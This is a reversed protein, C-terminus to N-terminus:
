AGTQWQALWADVAGSWDTPGTIGEVMGTSLRGRVGTSTRTESAAFDADHRRGLSVSASDAESRGGIQAVRLSIPAAASQQRASTVQAVRTALGSRNVSQLVDADRPVGLNFVSLNRGENGNTTAGEAYALLSTSAGQLPATPVVRGHLSEFGASLRLQSAGIRWNSRAPMALDVDVSTGYLMAQDHGLSGIANVQDFGYASHQFRYGAVDGQIRGMDSQFILTDNATSDYLSAKDIGGSAYATVREFGNTVLAYSRGTLRAAGPQAIFTENGLTDYLSAQDEGSSAFVDVRAFGVARHAFGNGSMTSEAASGVFQDNGVSDHFVVSDYGGGGVLIIQEVGDVGVAYGRGTVNAGNVGIVAVDKGTSGTVHAVDVGDGGQFRVSSVLRRDLGYDLGNITFRTPAGAVYQFSDSGASGHVTALPGNIEVLNAVRIHVNANGGWARILLEEGARVSADARAYGVGAQGNALLRQDASYVQLQTSGGSAHYSAAVTLLGSRSARVRYWKEGGALDQSAHQEDHAWGWDEVTPANPQNNNSGGGNQGGNNGSLMINDLARRLNIRHYSGGTAGDFVMDATQRFHDYITQQNIQQYGRLEMAERVLVAAGALYPTAMSTGSAEVFDDTIGNFGYLYDPATSAIREGPAALVRSNRQSFSSLNGAGNVSAVPVVYPSAAPYSLGAAAFNQFSNGAAVAIFVGDAALQAFEDELNAWQPISNANWEVGLSLNVTTIPNEYANRNQHVWRLAQEVWSFYGAGQDNFVRLAVLDVGSAVGVHNSDSSGVIGAVHTGHFGAPGDDYPNADGEAFDWGGVVRYSHGFGNGLAYHDFAIGTDIIAVTQRSGRLQSYQSHVYDAGSQRHADALFTGLGVDLPDIPARLIDQLYFDPIPQVTFLLRDELQEMRASWCVLLRGLRARM